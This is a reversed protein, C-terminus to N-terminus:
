KLLKILKESTKNLYDKRKDLKDPHHALADCRQIEFLKLYLDYNNVIDEEKIRNFLSCKKIESIKEKM